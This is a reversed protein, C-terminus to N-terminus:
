VSSFVLREMQQFSFYDISDLWFLSCRLLQSVKEKICFYPFSFIFIIYWYLIIFIIRFYIYIMCLYYEAIIQWIKIM